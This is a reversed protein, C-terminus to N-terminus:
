GMGFFQAKIQIQLFESHGAMPSDHVEHRLLSKFYSDSPLVLRAKYYLIQNREASGKVTVQSVRLSNRIQQFEFSHQAEGLADKPWTASPQSIVFASRIETQKSLADAVVNERVVRYVIQYDFGLLKNCM